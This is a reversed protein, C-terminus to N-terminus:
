EWFQKIQAFTKPIKIVKKFFIIWATTRILRILKFFRNIDPFEMQLPEDLQVTLIQDYECHPEEPWDAEPSKLFNPGSFWKGDPLFDINKTKKTAQDANMKSPLWHWQSIYTDEHIKGLRCAVFIPFRRSESRIQQLVLM